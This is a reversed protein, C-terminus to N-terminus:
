CRGTPYVERCLVMEQRRYPGTGRHHDQGKRPPGTRSRAGAGMLLALADLILSKGAGTEGTICNLGETFQIEIEDFIAMSSIKLFDIMEGAVEAQKETDRFLEETAAGPCGEHIGAQGQDQRGGAPPIGKQGDLTLYINDSAKGSKVVIIVEQSDPLVISRNSLVHPCIPNLVIASVQPHVIPGGAALNYATSGTPTSVILGDAWYDTIFTDGETWVM